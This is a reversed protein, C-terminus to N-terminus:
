DFRKNCSDEFCIEWKGSFDWESVVFLSRIWNGGWDYEIYGLYHNVDM